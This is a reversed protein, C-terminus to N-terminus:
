KLTSSRDEPDWGYAGHDYWFMVFEQLSRWGTDPEYVESILGHINRQHDKFIVTGDDYARATITQKEGHAYERDTHFRIEKM